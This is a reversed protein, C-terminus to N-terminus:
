RFAPNRDYEAFTQLTQDKKSIIPSTVPWPIGIEPDNWIIGNEGVANYNADVKYLVDAPENGLVCFGHAFGAPIWLLQPNQGDLEVSVFKKYTSSGPRLDVAVDLIKGRTVGVLKGQAPQFQYHLGRIVGPKSTSFNDQVFPFALGLAAFNEQNYREVFFGREDLHAKLTLLKLGSLALSEVKLM